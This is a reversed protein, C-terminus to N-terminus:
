AKWAAESAGAIPAPARLKAPTESMQFPPGPYADEGLTAWFGRDALHESNRLEEMTLVPGAVVRRLALEEFLEAKTWSSMAEGVRATYEDKHANRYWSTEWRPDEALDHLGLVNMADRWFHARSITLAFHGDRIPVPGTTIDVAQRRSAPVGLYQGRLIAPSSASVMVDLEAVDIEQGLGANADRHILAGVIAGYAATGTCFAVQHGSPKLPTRGADGNLSAWGSLAAVSLENAADEARSGTMGFPTVHCLVLRQNEFASYHLGLASLGSPRFGSVVVDAGQALGLMTAKGATSRLDLQISRKNALFLGAAIGNGDADFPPEHRLPHGEPGELMVVDAGFDALLRSCWAGSASTSLDLVRIGALSQTLYKELASHM